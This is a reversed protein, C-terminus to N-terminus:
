HSNPCHGFSCLNKNPPAERLSTNLCFIHTFLVLFNLIGGWYTQKTMIGLFMCVEAKIIIITPNFQDMPYSPHDSMGGSRWLSKYIFLILRATDTQTDTVFTILQVLIGMCIEKLLREFM